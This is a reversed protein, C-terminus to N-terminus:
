GPRREDRQIPDARLDLAVAVLDVVDQGADGEIEELGVAGGGDGELDFGVQAGDAGLEIGEDRRVVVDLLEQLQLLLDVALTLHGLGRDEEAIRKQALQTGIKPEAM